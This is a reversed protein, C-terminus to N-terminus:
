VTDLHVNFRRNSRSKKEVKGLRLRGIETTTKVHTGGCPQLDVPTEGAGIQVLRVHGAGTPPAVSMTKVLGPNAALEADTIWRESVPHDGAVLANLADEISQKDSPPDAMDFDLRAKEPTIQGGTVPLPIVVSLLHLATHLRMAAYRAPWDLVQRVRAGVPLDIPRCPKLVPGGGEGKLTTEIAVEGRETHLTGVDGAQGGGTPYFLCADLLIGGDATLGTVTAPAERLYADERFLLKTM